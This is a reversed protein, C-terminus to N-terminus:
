ATLAPAKGNWAPAPSQPRPPPFTVPPAGPATLKWTQKTLWTSVTDTPWPTSAHITPPLPQHPYRQHNHQKCFLIESTMDEVTLVRGTRPHFEHRNVGKFLVRHGNLTMIGNEIRFRRFGVRQSTSEVTKGDHLLDVTLTYLSPSEASWPAIGELADSSIRVSADETAVTGSWIVQTGDLVSAQLTYAKIEEGNLTVLADLHAEGTPADYDAEVTLSAISVAPRAVLNM